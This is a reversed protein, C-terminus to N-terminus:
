EGTPPQDEYTDTHEEHANTVEEEGLGLRSIQERLAHYRTIFRPSRAYLRLRLPGTLDAGDHLENLEHLTVEHLHANDQHSFNTNTIIHFM